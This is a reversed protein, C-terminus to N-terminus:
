HEHCLTRYLRDQNDIPQLRALLPTGDAALPVQEASACNLLWGQHRVHDVHLKEFEYRVFRVLMGEDTEIRDIASTDIVSFATVMPVLYTWPRWPASESRTEVVVAEAPLRAERLELWAYEYQVQYGLMAAGALVPVLWRPLRARSLKRLILAVGAGALGAFVIAVIHWLM